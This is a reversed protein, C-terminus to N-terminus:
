HWRVMLRIFVYLFLVCGISVALLRAVFRSDFKMGPVSSRAGAIQLYSAAIGLMLYTTITYPRSLSFMGACYSGVMALVCPCLKATLRDDFVVDKFGLRLVGVFSAYFAGTFFTGGFFGLEAYTHVFSNHAVLGAHDAYQNMGVGFLPSSRLMAIGEAWLQIRQQSTDSADGIDIRTMRGGFLVLVAPLALVALGLTKKWGFKAYFLILLGAACTLLGGRSYTLQLAYVFVGLPALWLARGFGRTENLFFLGAIM